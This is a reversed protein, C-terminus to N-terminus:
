ARLQKSITALQNSGGGARERAKQWESFIRQGGQLIEVCRAFRESKLGWNPPTYLKATNALFLEFM